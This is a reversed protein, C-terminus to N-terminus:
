LIGAAAGVGQTVYSMWGPNQTTMQNGTSTGGTQVLQPMTLAAAATKRGFSTDEAQHYGERMAKDRDKQVGLIRSLQSKQRVDASTGAGFPDATSRRVDEEMSAYRHQISPDAQVPKNAMDLVGQMQSNVPSSLWDYQSTFAQNSNTKTSPNKGM